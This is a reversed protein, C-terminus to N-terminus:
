PTTIRRPLISELSDLARAEDEDLREGADLAHSVVQLHRRESVPRRDGGGVRVDRTPHLSAERLLGREALDTHARPASRHGEGADHRRDVDTGASGLEGTAHGANAGDRVLQGIVGRVARGDFGSRRAGKRRALDDSPFGVAGESCEWSLLSSRGDNSSSGPDCVTSSVATLPSMGGAWGSAHDPRFMARTLADGSSARPRRGMDTGSM